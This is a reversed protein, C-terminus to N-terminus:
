EEESDSDKISADLPGPRDWCSAPSPRKGREVEDEEEKKKRQDTIAKAILLHRQSPKITAIDPCKGLVPRRSYPGSEKPM